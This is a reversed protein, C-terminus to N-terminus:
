IKVNEEVISVIINKKWVIKVKNKYLTVVM